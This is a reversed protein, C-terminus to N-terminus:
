RRAIGTSRCRYFKAAPTTRNKKERYNYTFFINVNGNQFIQCTNLPGPVHSYSRGVVTYISGLPTCFLTSANGSRLIFKRCVIFVTSFHLIVTVFNFSTHLFFLVIIKKFGKPEVRKKLHVSWCKKKYSIGSISDVLESFSLTYWRM